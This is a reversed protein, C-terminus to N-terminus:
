RDSIFLAILLNVLLVNIAFLYLWLYLASGPVFSGSQSAQSFKEPAYYLDFVGFFPAWFSGEPDVDFAYSTSSANFSFSASSPDQVIWTPIQLLNLGAGFATM